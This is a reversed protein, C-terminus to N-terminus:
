SCLFRSRLCRCISHCPGSSPLKENFLTECILADSESRLLWLSLQLKERLATDERLAQYTAYSKGLGIADERYIRLKHYLCQSGLPTLTTDMSSFLREFELDEWTRDDVFDVASQRTLDFLKTALWPDKSGHQGWNARIQELPHHKGTLRFRLWDQLLRFHITWHSMSQSPM